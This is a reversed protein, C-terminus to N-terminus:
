DNKFVLENLVKQLKSDYVLPTGEFTVLQKIGTINTLFVSTQQNLEYPKISREIIHKNKAKLQTILHQRMIGAICGSGIPPTIFQENEHDYLFINSSTAEALEKKHNLLILEGVKRDNKEKAAMVYNLSSITKLQSFATPYLTVTKSIYSHIEQTISDEFIQIDILFDSTKVPPSYKGAGQRWIILKLRYTLHNTNQRKVFNSIYDLFSQHDLPCEIGLAHLGKTLRNWHLEFFQVQGKKYIMTEFLGDGFALGRNLLPLEENEQDLFKGNYNIMYINCNLAENIWKDNKSKLM